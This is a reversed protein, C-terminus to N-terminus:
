RLGRKNAYIEEELGFKKIRYGLQRETLGLERATHAQIWSHRELAAMIERKEMEELNTPAPPPVAVPPHAVKRAVIHSPMERASIEGGEIVIALREILNEMERVNGPWDYHSLLGAVEDTLRLHKRYERSFKALFHTLLLPVDEPRDRLSPVRIPFVNLRYYLDQRFRGEAIAEALNLNTASIIRVDAEKTQNSGLREFEREQLFRLLKTQMLLSMEGIEDLFLTGGRAEEIRGPKAKDAGTFAGKEYGFLEAELLNEPIAACNLKVFPMERRPSTEHIIRAILTKGTGSEGLLLVTARSKAVKEMLKHVDVMSRSAGVMFFDDYKESIEAKLSKNARVLSEEREAVQRNLSVFQAILAALITLFEVDEDFSVEAGFLRDVSLVGITRGGLMIPVGIFSTRVESARRAGTKNLFLPDRSIDKVIYPKGTQYIRGTVGEDVRYVGRVKERETLGCSARIALTGPEGGDLVVTARKMSLSSSLLFLLDNLTKDLRLAEGMLLSFRYLVKLKVDGIQSAM